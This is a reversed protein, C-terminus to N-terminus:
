GQSGEVEQRSPSFQLHLVIDMGNLDWSSRSIEVALRARNNLREKDKKQKTCAEDTLSSWRWEEM